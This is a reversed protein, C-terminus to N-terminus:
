PDPQRPAASRCSSPALGLGALAQVWGAPDSRGAGLDEVEGRALEPTEGAQPAWSGEAAREAVGTVQAQGSRVRVALRLSLQDRTPRTGGGLWVLALPGAGDEAMVLGLVQREVLAGEADALARPLELMAEAGLLATWAFDVELEEEALAGQDLERLTRAELVEGRAFEFAARQALASSLELAQRAM